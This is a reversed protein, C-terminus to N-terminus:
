GDNVKLFRFTFLIAIISIVPEAILISFEINSSLGYMFAKVSHIAFILFFLDFVALSIFIRKDM